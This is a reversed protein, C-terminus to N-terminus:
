LDAPFIREILDHLLSTRLECRGHTVDLAYRVLAQRAPSPTEAAHIGKGADYMHGHRRYNARAQTLSYDGNVGNNPADAIADDQGDDEWYCVQCVDFCGPPEELTPLGCCPCAYIYFSM